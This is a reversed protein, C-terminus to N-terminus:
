RTTLEWVTNSGEGSRTLMMSLPGSSLAGRHTNHSGGFKEAIAKASDRVSNGQCHDVVFAAMEANRDLTKKSRQQSRNDADAKVQDASKADLVEFRAGAGHKLIIEHPEAYNGSFTLTLNGKRSRKVFCRWRVSQSIASSGMPKDPAAGNQMKKESSHGVIVVPIGRRTFLRIGDFFQRIAEDQNISGILAQTLNDVLLVTSGRATVEEFLERWRDATMQSLCYYDILPESDVPLLGQVQSAYDAAGGDDTWCVAVKFDRDQPVPVGIFDDGSLLAGIMASMLFSKGVKAEGYVLTSSTSIIGEILWTERTEAELLADHHSMRNFKSATQNETTATSTM